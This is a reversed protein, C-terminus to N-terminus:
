ENLEERGEDIQMEEGRRGIWLGRMAVCLPLSGTYLGRVLICLGRVLICLGRV